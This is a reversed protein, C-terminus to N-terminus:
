AGKEERQVPAKPMNRNTVWSFLRLFMTRPLIRYLLKEVRFVFKTNCARGKHGAWLTRALWQEYLARAPHLNNDGHEWPYDGLFRFYHVVAPAKSACTIEEPTYYAEPLWPYVAFYQKSTYALHTGQFNYGVPLKQISGRFFDNLLDQDNFSYISVNKKLHVMMDPLLNNRRWVPLQFLIVGANFYPETKGLGLRFRSFYFISDCVCAVPANEMEMEFLPSLSGQVITDSDLWLLRDVEPPIQDLMFFRLWTALSGNWEKCQYQVIEREAAATDLMIIERDYKQATQELLRLNEESIGMGALYVTINEADRNNEFLSTMSVGLLPVYNNDCGYLVNLSRKMM